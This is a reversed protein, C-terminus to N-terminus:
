SCKSYGCNLCTLCGDMRIMAKTSCKRCLISEPPFESSPVNSAQQKNVLGSHKAAIFHSKRQDIKSDPLMGIEKLHKEIVDGIESILSPIYRGGRKFYGGNPDFVSRLEEVLFIIDGGKRFIASIILTLAVTWQFHEMNKSSLFLEFPRRLEHATGQNLIMDNITVYLAHDAQPPKIKYTAGILAEPRKITESMQQHLRDAKDNDVITLKTDPKVINFATIKQTIKVAM